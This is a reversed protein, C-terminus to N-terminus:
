LKPNLKFTARLTESQEDATGKSNPLCNSHPHLSFPWHATPHICLIQRKFISLKNVAFM